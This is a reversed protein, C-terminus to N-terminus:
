EETQDDDKVLLKFEQGPRMFPTFNGEKEAEENERYAIGIDFLDLVNIEVDRGPTKNQNLHDIMGRFFAFAITPIVEHHTVHINNEAELYKQAYKAINMIETQNERIEILNATNAM